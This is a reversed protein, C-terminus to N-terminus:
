CMASPPALLLACAGAWCGVFLRTRSFLPAPADGEMMSWMISPSAGPSQRGKEGTHSQGGGTTWRGGRCSRSTSVMGWNRHGAACARASCMTACRIRGEGQRAAHPLPEAGRRPAAAQLHSNAGMRALTHSRIRHMDCVLCAMPQLNCLFM